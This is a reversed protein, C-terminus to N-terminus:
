ITIKGPMKLLQEQFLEEISRAMSVIDMTPDNFKYCNSFVLEIDTICDQAKKYVNENLRQKITGFDTPTQIVNPYDPINLKVIDVPVNFPWADRHKMLNHQLVGKLFQLQVADTTREDTAKMEKVEVEHYKENNEVQLPRKKTNAFNDDGISIADDNSSQLTGEPKNQLVNYKEADLGDLVSVRKHEKKENLIKMDAKLDHAAQKSPMHSKFSSHPRMSTNDGGVLKHFDSMHLHFHNEDDTVYICQICRFVKKGDENISQSVYSENMSKDKPQFDRNIEASTELSSLFPANGIGHHTNMSRKIKGTHDFLSDRVYNREGLPLKHPNNTESAFTLNKGGHNIKKNRGYFNQPPFFCDNGKINTPQDNINEENQILLSIDPQVTINVPESLHTINFPKSKPIIQKPTKPKDEDIYKEITKIEKIITQGLRESNNITINLIRKRSEEVEKILDAYGKEIIEDIRRELNQLLSNTSGLNTDM